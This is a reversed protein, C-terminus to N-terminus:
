GEIDPYYDIKYYADKNIVCLRKKVLTNTNKSKHDLHQLYERSSINKKKHMLQGKKKEIIDLSYTFSDSFGKKVLSCSLVETSILSYDIFDEFVEM